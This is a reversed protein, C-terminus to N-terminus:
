DLTEQTMFINDLIYRLPLFASQDDSIIDCLVPQLRLQLVKAFLKYSVNLLAIPRWNPLKSRSNGKHILSLVGYNMGPPLRNNSIADSIMKLYDNGILQWYLKYFETIVSDKGPSKGSAMQSLATQLEGMSIPVKLSSRMSDTLLDQLSLFATDSSSSSHTSPPPCAYLGTYYDICISELDSRDHCLIGASNELETIHSAGSVERTVRFFEKSASDGVQRWKLRSRFERGSAKVSEIQQLDAACKSLASQISSNAPDAQLSDLIGALECRKDAETQRERKAQEKCFMKYFKICRRLKGFFGLAPHSAWIREFNQRVVPLELFRSNMRYLSAQPLEEKLELSCWVPHHDSHISDGIIRHDQVLLPGDFPHPVPTYIRDLRAMIRSDDRRHNDWTYRLGDFPSFTDHVALSALLDQFSLKELESITRGNRSFKDEPNLVMNWDRALMWRCDRPLIELLEHWLHIREPATHPGYVNLISM